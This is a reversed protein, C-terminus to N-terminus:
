IDMKEVCKKHAHTLFLAGEIYGCIIKDGNLLPELCIACQTNEDIEELCSSCVSIERKLINIEMM